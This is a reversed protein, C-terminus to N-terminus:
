DEIYYAELISDIYIAANGHMQSLHRMARMADEKKPKKNHVTKLLQSFEFECRMMNDKFFQEHKDFSAQDGLHLSIIMLKFRSLNAVTKKLDKQKLLDQFSKKATKWHKSLFDLEAINFEASLNPAVDQVRQFYRRATDFDRQNVLCAGMLNLSKHHDPDLELAKGCQEMADEIKNDAFLLSAHTYHVDAKTIEPAEQAHLSSLLTASLLIIFLKMTSNTNM